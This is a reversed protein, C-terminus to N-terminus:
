SLDDDVAQGGGLFFGGSQGFGGGRFLEVMEGGIGDATEDGDESVIVGIDFRDNFAGGAQELGDNVQGSICVIGDIM